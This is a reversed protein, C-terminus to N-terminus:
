KELILMIHELTIGFGSLIKKKIDETQKSM